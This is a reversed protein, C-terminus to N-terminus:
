YGVMFMPEARGNRIPFAISIPLNIGPLMIGAGASKRVVVPQRSNWISGMDYFVQIRKLFRYEVTTNAMRNGGLPSIEYKTWGRLTNANGLSFREFMPANGTVRGLNLYFGLGSNKDRRFHYQADVEHRAYIFDSDLTGTGAHLSYNWQLWHQNDKEPVMGLSHSLTGKFANAKQYGHRPPDMQLETFAVGATADFHHPLGMSATGSATERLRYLGPSQASLRHAQLTDTKWLARYASYDIRFTFRERSLSYGLLGGTQREIYTEPENILEANVTGLGLHHVSGTIKPASFGQKSHYFGFGFNGGIGFTNESRHVDYFIKVRDPTTGRRLKREVTIDNPVNEKQIRKGLKDAQETDLNKGVMAQLEKNLDDSIKAKFKGGVEVADVIYRANINTKLADSDAIKAVVFILRIRDPMTGPQPTAAAVYEPLEIQIGEALMKAMDANYPKGALAQIDARLEATFRTDSIGSVDVREVVANTPVPTATQQAAANVSLTTLLLLLLKRMTAPIAFPPGNYLANM